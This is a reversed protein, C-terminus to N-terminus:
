ASCREAPTEGATSLWHEADEVSDFFAIRDSELIRRTQLRWLASGAVIAVWRARYRIQRTMDSFASAVDQPHLTGISTDILALHDGPACHLQRVAVQSDRMMQEVLSLPIAGHLTLKFLRPQEIEIKYM